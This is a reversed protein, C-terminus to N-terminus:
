RSLLNEKRTKSIKEASAQGTKRAQVQLREKQHEFYCDKSCYKDRWDSALVRFENLCGECKLIKHEARNKNSIKSACSKSCYVFKNEKKRRTLHDKEIDFEVACANCNTKIIVKVRLKRACAKSCCTKDKRNQEFLTNCIICSILPKM